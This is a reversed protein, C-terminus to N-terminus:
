EKGPKEFLGSDLPRNLEVKDIHIETLVQGNMLTTIRRAFPIGKVKKYDELRVETETETGRLLQKSTIASILYKDRDIYFHLEEGKSMKYLLHYCEERESNLLQLDAGKEAYNWLPDEFQVQGLLTNLEEGTIEVAEPIGMAPAFKWAKEGDYTQIVEAGPYNEEVRLKDPRAQFIRFSLEFGASVFSNKGTSIITEVQGMKEQSAAKYHSELISSLDQASAPFILISLCLSSLLLFRM